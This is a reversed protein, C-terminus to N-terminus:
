TKDAINQETTSAVRLYALKNKNWSISELFYPNITESILYTIQMSLYIPSDKGNFIYQTTEEYKGKMHQWYEEYHLNQTGHKM